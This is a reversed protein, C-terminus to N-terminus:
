CSILKKKACREKRAGVALRSPLWNMATLAGHGNPGKVSRASIREPTKASSRSRPADNVRAKSGAGPADFLTNGM